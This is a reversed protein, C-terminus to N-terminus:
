LVTDTDVISCSAGTGRMSCYGGPNKHLYQQHEDEAYYFAPAPIIETTIDGYGQKQLASQFQAKSKLALEMQQESHTYIGSRYQTGQDPGQRMGQTPDHNEWFLSLLQTYSIQAPDFVVQVVENHGTLGSCVEKYHPNPTLGGAFGVATSYVGKQQWFLREIGWYCGMGFLALEYGEPWPGSMPNGLVCHTPAVRIAVDRGPLADQESPLASKKFLGFV